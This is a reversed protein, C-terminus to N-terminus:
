GHRLRVCEEDAHIDVFVRDRDGIDSLIMAGLDGIEAANAGTLIVNIVEDALHLRFGVVQDEDLFSTGTAGPEIPIQHFFTIVAPYSGGRQDGLFGAVPDFSVASIGHLQGAQRARPVEGHDIDGFDFIFGHAIEGTRTFIGDAIEFVGLKTELGEQESV